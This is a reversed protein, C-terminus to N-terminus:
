SRPGQPLDTAAMSRFALLLKHARQPEDGFEPPLTRYRLLPSLGPIEQVDSESVQYFGMEWDPFYRQEKLEELLVETGRHRPDHLIRDFAEQVQEPPGELAQIFTGGSYLLLGTIGAERNNRRSVHLIDLLDEKSPPSTAASAYVLHLFM